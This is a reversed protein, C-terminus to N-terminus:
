AVYPSAGVCTRLHTPKALQRVKSTSIDSLNFLLPQTAPWEQLNAPLRICPGTLVVKSMCSRGDMCVRCHMGDVAQM